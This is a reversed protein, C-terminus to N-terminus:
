SFRHAAFGAYQYCIEKFSEKFAKDGFVWLSDVGISRYDDIREILDEESIPSIQCEIAILEEEDKLAVDIIRYRNERQPISVRYEFYVQKEEDEELLEKQAWEAIKTKGIVHDSSESVTYTGVKNQKIYEPDFIIDRPLQEIPSKPSSAFHSRVSVNGYTSRRQHPSKFRVERHFIPDVFHENNANGKKIEEQIEEGTIQKGTRTDIATFM